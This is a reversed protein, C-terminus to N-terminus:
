AEPVEVPPESKLQAKRERKLEAPTVVVDGDPGIITFGEAKYQADFAEQTVSYQPGEVDNETPGQIIFRQESVPGGVM